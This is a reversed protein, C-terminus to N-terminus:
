YKVPRYLDRFDRTKTASFDKEFIHQGQGIYNEFFDNLINLESVFLRYWAEDDDIDLNDSKIIGSMKEPTEAFFKYYAYNIIYNCIRIVQQIDTANVNEYDYRALIKDYGLVINDSYTYQGYTFRNLHAFINKEAKKIDRSLKVSSLANVIHYNREFHCSHELAIFNLARVFCGAQKFLKSFQMDYYLGSNKNKIQSLCESEYEAHSLNKNDYFKARRVLDIISYEHILLSELFTLYSLEQGSTKQLKGNDDTNEFTKYLETFKLDNNAFFNKALEDKETRLIRYNYVSNDYATMDREVKNSSEKMSKNLNDLWIDLKSNPNGPSDDQWDLINKIYFRVSHKESFRRYLSYLISMVCHKNIDDKLDALIDFYIPKWNEELSRIVLKSMILYVNEGVTKCIYSGM